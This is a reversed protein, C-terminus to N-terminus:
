KILVIKSNKLTNPFINLYTFFFSCSFFFFDDEILPINLLNISIIDGSLCPICKVPPYLKM